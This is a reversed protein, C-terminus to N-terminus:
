RSLRSRSRREPVGACAQVGAQALEILEEKIQFPDLGDFKAHIGADTM